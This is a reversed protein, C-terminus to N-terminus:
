KLNLEQKIKKNIENIKMNYAVNLAGSFGEFDSNGHAKIVYGDIGLLMAGGTTKYNFTDKINDIVSKSLLYGVKTKINKKFGTKLLKSVIGFVGECTKLFLNGSFGDTVVVDAEGNLVDRAEINGKFNEFNIERLYKNTQQITETGKHDETGNSLLYTNPNEIKCIYKAYIKGMYAFQVLEDKFNVNNAGIDLLVVQKNKIMTPFPTVLGPRKIGKIRGILFTAATLYAGTSGASILIDAKEDKYTQIAKIMSSDKRKIALLPNDDMTIVDNANILSFNKRNNFESFENVKGVLYFIVDEHKKSFEDIAKILGSPGLDSGMMDIVIKM